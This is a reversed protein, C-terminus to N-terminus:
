EMAAGLPLLQWLGAQTSTTPLQPLTFYGKARQHQMSIIGYYKLTRTVVPLGDKLTLSGSVEGTSSNLKLTVKGTNVAPLYVKHKEDVRLPLNFANADELYLSSAELSAGTFFLQLQSEGVLVPSLGWLITPSTPKSYESGEAILTNANGVGFNFGAPYVKDKTSSPGTKNWSLEGSVADLAPAAFETLTLSGHVSGKNNYLMYFLPIQGDLGCVSSRSIVTGDALRLAVKATGTKASFTVYGAGSGMPAAEASLLPEQPTLYFNHRAGRTLSPTARQGSIDANWTGTADSVNGTLEGTERSISFNLTLATLPLKRKITVVATADAGVSAALRGKFPLVTAAGMQLSGTFSGSSSISLSYIRGGYNSNALVSENRSVIAAFSGYNQEDLPAINLLFTRTTSGAANTVKITILKNVVPASPTGYIEGTRSNYSMGKPLGTITVKTVENLIDLSLPAVAGSVIWDAPLDARQIQPKFRISAATEPLLRAEGNITVVCSYAGQDGDVCKRVVLKSSHAGVVHATPTSPDEHLLDTGNKRWRYTAQMGTPLVAGVSMTMDAGENFIVEAPPPTVVSVGFSRSEQGTVNAVTVSYDGGNASTVSSLNYEGTTDSKVVTTKKKWTYLIEGTGSGSASLELSEGSLKFYHEDPASLLEAPMTDVGHLRVTANIYTGVDEGALDRVFLKWVGLSSEGWHRNSTFTWNFYGEDSSDFGTPSVLTSSVGSPSVLRVELDGRFEHTANFRVEVMEVRVPPQSGFDFDRSIGTTNDDPIRGSVSNTIILSNMEELNTWTQAMAVAAGAEVMGGGYKSNHKIPAISYKGGARSIWGSDASNVKKSSRLLIEKVDRWGLLPNAELMLAVVGSVIPTAASTGNFTSTYASSRSYGDAGSLDTTTVGDAPASVLINSGYESYSAAAGTSTLAAVGITHMNNSYADKNSQDGFGRGNGGAFTFITGRGGRGNVAANKWANVVVGEAEGLTEPDDPPGWSNSKIHILDGDAGFADAQDLPTPFGAILRIGVLSADPAVGLGGVTNNNAAVLGACSTGHSDDESADSGGTYPSPNSDEDNYDYHLSRPDINAALDPHTLELGDDIVAVTIGAGKYTDWVTKPNIHISGANSLHWQKSFLPDTPTYKKSVAAALMPRASAVSPVADLEAAAVLAAGPFRNDVGAVYGPSAKVERVEQVGKLKASAVAAPVDNVELLVQDSLVRRNWETREEPKTGLPYFVLQPQKQGPRALKAAEDLLATVEQKAAIKTVRKKPDAETRVYLEDKALELVRVRGRDELGFPQQILRVLREAPALTDWGAIDRWPKGDKLGPTGQPVPTSVRRVKKTLQPMAAMDEVVGEAGAEADAKVVAPLSGGAVVASAPKSTQSSLGLKWAAALLLALCIIVLRSLKM